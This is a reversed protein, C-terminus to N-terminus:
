CNRRLVGPLLANVLRPEFIYIPLVVGSKAALSLVLNDSTRLDRKFWIVEVDLLM